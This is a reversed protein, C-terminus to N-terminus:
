PKKEPEPAPAPEPLDWRTDHFYGLVLDPIGDGTFDQVELSEPERFSFTQTLPAGFGGAGDGPYFEFRTDNGMESVAAIDVDGDLDM